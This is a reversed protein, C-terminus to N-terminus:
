HLESLTLGEAPSALFIGSSPLLLCSAFHTNLKKILRAEIKSLFIFRNPRSKNKLDLMDYMLWLDHWSHLQSQLHSGLLKTHGKLELDLKDSYVFDETSCVKQAGGAACLRGHGVTKTLDIKTAPFRTGFSPAAAELYGPLAHGPLSASLTKNLTLLKCNGLIEFSKLIWLKRTYNWVIHLLAKGWGFCCTTWFLSVRLMWFVMLYEELLLDMWGGLM